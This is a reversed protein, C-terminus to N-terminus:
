AVRHRARHGDVACPPGGRLRRGTRVRTRARTRVRRRHHGALRPWSLDSALKGGGFWVPRGDRGHDGPLAVAYGTVTEGNYESLRPPVQLGAETLLQLFEDPGTAAAAATRVQRRLTARAPERRGIRATKEHEARTPTRTATRDRPATRALRYTDEAWRCAADVRYFDNPPRRGSV